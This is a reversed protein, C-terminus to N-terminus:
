CPQAPRLPATKDRVAAISNKVAAETKDRVRRAPLLAHPADHPHDLAAKEDAAGIRDKDGVGGADVAEVARAGMPATRRDKDDHPHRPRALRRNRLFESRAEAPGTLLAVREMGFRVDGLHMGSNREGIRIALRPELAHGGPDVTLAGLFLRPDYRAGRELSGMALDDDAIPRFYPQDIKAAASVEDGFVQRPAAAMEHGCAQQYALDIGELFRIRALIWQRDIHSRWGTLDGLLDDPQEASGSRDALAHPARLCM